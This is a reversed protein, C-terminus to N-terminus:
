KKIVTGILVNNTKTDVVRIYYTGAVQNSLSYGFKNDGKDLWVTQQKILVGTGSLLQISVQKRAETNKIKVDFARETITPFVQLSVSTTKDSLVVSVPKSYVIRGDLDISKLQYYSRGRYPTADTLDFQQIDSCNACGSRRGIAEYKIGDKSREVEFYSHNTQNSTSWHILVASENQIPKATFNLLHVPLTLAQGYRAIFFDAGNISSFTASGTGPDFDALSNIFAGTIYTNNSADLVIGSGVDAGTGGMRKAFLYTGSADYNALFIDTGGDSILNTTTASPDFDATATFTGTLFVNGSGDVAIANGADATTGGLGRAYIYNGSVDYKAFFIDTGGASVLNNITLGPDFDVTAAFTGTIYINNSADIAIANGIDTSTGGMKKAFVYAGSGNYEALFIDAGGSNTLSATGAGPDFDTTSSYSGTIYANSSGDVVIALGTETGTAGIKIAYVYNGSADYRALFLDQGATAVLNVTAVGPDFDATGTFFGTVYANGTGDTAIANAQDATSSGIRIAYVYNGSADYSAIFIDLNGASTLNATGSSPDFDATANFSGTIYANGSADVALGKSLEAGTGGMSKAYVYDGASNYKALFIDTSGASALYATGPGPDFDITGTFNGAVYINGAADRAIANGADSFASSSYGGLQKAWIYDGNADYKGAFSNMNTLAAFEVTGSGPDFDVTNSFFGTFYVNGSNDIAIGYGTDNGTGAFGKVFVFLGTADYKALFLENGGASILNATGADPDFDVTGSFAGTLYVNGSGDV